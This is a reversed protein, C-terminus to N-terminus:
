CPIRPLNSYLHFQGKNKDQLWKPFSDLYHRTKMVSKGYADNLVLLNQEQPNSPEENDEEM